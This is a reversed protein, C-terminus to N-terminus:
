EKDTEAKDQVRVGEDEREIVQHHYLDGDSASKSHMCDMAQVRHHGIRHIGTEGHERDM